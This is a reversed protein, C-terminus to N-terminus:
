ENSEQEQKKKQKNMETGSKDKAKKKKCINKIGEQNLGLYPPPILSNEGHHRKPVKLCVMM